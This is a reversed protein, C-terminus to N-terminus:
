VTDATHPHGDPPLFRSQPLIGPTESVPLIEPHIAPVAEPVDALVAEQPEQVPGWPLM